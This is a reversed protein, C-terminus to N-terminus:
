SKVAPVDLFLEPSKQTVLLAPPIDDSPSVESLPIQLSPTGSTSPIVSLSRRPASSPSPHTFSIRVSLRRESLSLNATLVASSIRSEL